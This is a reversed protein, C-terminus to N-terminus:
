PAVPEFLPRYTWGRLEGHQILVWDGGPDKLVTVVDGPSVQGVVAHNTGQGARVNVTDTAALRSLPAADTAAGNTASGTQSDRAAAAPSAAQDALNQTPLQKSDAPSPGTQPVTTATGSEPEDTSAAQLAAIQDSTYGRASLLGEIPVLWLVAAFFAANVVIIIFVRALM